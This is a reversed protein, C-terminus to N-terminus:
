ASDVALMVLERGRAAQDANADLLLRRYPDCALGCPQQYVACIYAVREAQELTECSLNDQTTPDGTM